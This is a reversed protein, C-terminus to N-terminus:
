RRSRSPAVRPPPAYPAYPHAVLPPPPHPGPWVPFSPVAGVDCSKAEPLNLGELGLACRAAAEQGARWADYCAQHYRGRTEGNSTETWRDGAIIPRRCRQCGVVNPNVVLHDRIWKDIRDREYRVAALRAPDVQDFFDDVEVGWSRRRRALASSPTSPM